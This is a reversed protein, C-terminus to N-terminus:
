KVQWFENFLGATVVEHAAGNKETPTLRLIAYDGLRPYLMANTKVYDESPITHGTNLVVYKKPNLPNPFILVPVHDASNYKKGNFEIEDRTWKLPLKPLLQALTLNSNPDGFLILHKDKLDNPNVAYDGTTPLEGRWHKAWDKQFADHKALAYKQLAPHWAKGSGTVCIFGSAFADDIPGQLGAIKQAVSDRVKAAEMRTVNTWKGAQKLYYVHRSKDPLVVVIVQQEFGNISVRPVNVTHPPLTL